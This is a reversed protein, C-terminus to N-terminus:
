INGRTDTRCLFSVFSIYLTAPYVFSHAMTTTASTASKSPHTLSLLICELKRCLLFKNANMFITSQVSSIDSSPVVTHILYPIKVGLYNLM